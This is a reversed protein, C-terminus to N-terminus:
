LYKKRNYGLFFVIAHLLSIIYIVEGGLYYYFGELGLFLYINFIENDFYTFLFVSFIISLLSLYLVKKHFINRQKYQYYILISLSIFYSLYHEYTFLSLLYYQLPVILFIMRFNKPSRLELHLKPKKLYYLLLEMSSNKFL